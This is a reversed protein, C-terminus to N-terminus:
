IIIIFKREEMQGMCYIILSESCEDILSSQACIKFCVAQM